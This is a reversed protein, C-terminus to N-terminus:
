LLRLGGSPTTKPESFEGWDEILATKLEGEEVTPESNEYTYSQFYKVDQPEYNVHDLLSDYFNEFM